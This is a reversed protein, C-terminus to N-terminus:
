AVPPQAATNEPCVAELTKVADLKTLAEVSSDATAARIAEFIEARHVTTAPPAQIGLRVRDGRIEVVKVVIKGGIVIEENLKRSLVLM